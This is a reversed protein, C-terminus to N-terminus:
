MLRVSDASSDVPTIRRVDFRRQRVYYGLVVLCVVGFVSFTYVLVQFTVYLPSSGVVPQQDGPAVSPDASPMTSVTNLSVSTTPEVVGNDKMTTSTPVPNAVEAEVANSAPSSTPYFEAFEQELINSVDESSYDADEVSAKTSSEAKASCLDVYFAQFLLMQSIGEVDARLRYYHMHLLMREMYTSNWGNGCIELVRLKPLYERLEIFNIMQIHNYAVILTELDNMAAFMSFDLETLNNYSLDLLMILSLNAFTNETIQISTNSLLLEQLNVLSAFVSDSQLPNNSLSLKTLNTLRTIPTVDSIANDHLLLETLNRGTGTITRIQNHNAQVFKVHDNVNLSTLSNNRLFLLMVKLDPFNFSELRNHTIDLRLLFDISDFFGDPLHTLSNYSLSIVKLMPSSSILKAPLQTLKNGSLTLRTLSKLGDFAYPAITTLNNSYLDLIELAGLGRFTYDELTSFNQRRIDLKTLNTLKEFAGPKIQQITGQLLELSTLNTHTAFIDEGLITENFRLILIDSINKMNAPCYLEADKLISSNGNILVCSAVHCMCLAADAPEYSVLANLTLGVLLGAITFKM